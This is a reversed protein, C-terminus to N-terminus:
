CTAAAGRVTGGHAGDDKEDKGEDGADQHSLAKEGKGLGGGRQYRDADRGDNEQQARVPDAALGQQQGSPVQDGVQHQEQEVCCLEIVAPVNGKEVSRGM